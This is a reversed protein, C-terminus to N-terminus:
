RKSILRFFKYWIFAVFVSILTAIIAFKASGIEISSKKSPKPQPSSTVNASPAPVESPKPEQKKETKYAPESQRATDTTRNKQVADTKQESEQKKPEEPKAPPVKPALPKAVKKPITGAPIKAGPVLTVPSEKSDPEQAGNEFVKIGQRTEKKFYILDAIEECFLELGIQQSIPFTIRTSNGLSGKPFFTLSIEKPRQFYEVVKIDKKKLLAVVPEKSFEVTHFYVSDNTQVLWIEGKAPSNTSGSTCIFGSIKEEPGMYIQLEQKVNEPLIGPTM